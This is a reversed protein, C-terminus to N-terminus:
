ESAPVDSTPAVPEKEVAPVDGAPVTESPPTEQQQVKELVSTPEVQKHSLYALTLSLAFFLTALIGTTRTLFSASGRSGFVTGSAGSGFAAGAEAGKGHQILILAVLAVSNVVFLGLIVNYLM